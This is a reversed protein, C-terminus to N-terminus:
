FFDPGFSDRHFFLSKMLSQETATEDSRFVHPVNSGIVFLDGSNFSNISDSVILTGSGRVIYSLQIERHQHLQNYFVREQDEQYVLGESGPKPIEFPLVKM